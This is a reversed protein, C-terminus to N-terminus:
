ISNSLHWLSFLFLDRLCGIRSAHCDTHTDRQLPGCPLNRGISTPSCELVNWCELVRTLQQYALRISYLVEIEPTFNLQVVRYLEKFVLSSALFYPDSHRVSVKREFLPVRLRREVNQSSNPRLLGVENLRLLLHSLYVKVVPKIIM